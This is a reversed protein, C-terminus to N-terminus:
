NKLNRKLMPSSLLASEGEIPFEDFRCEKRLFNYLAVCALLIEVQTKFPLPPASKFITFLSEFIGFIRKIVYRLSVHCCNRKMKLIMRMVKPSKINM